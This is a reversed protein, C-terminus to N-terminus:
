RSTSPRVTVVRAPPSLRDPKPRPYPRIRVADTPEAPMPKGIIKGDPLRIFAPAPAPVMGMEAAREALNQPSRLQRLERRLEQERATLVEAKHELDDIAFSNQQLSTNFLLLGVAGGLLLMTLLGVFPARPASPSARPVASLWRRPGKPADTEPHLPLATSM